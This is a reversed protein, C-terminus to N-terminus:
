LLTLKVIKELTLDIREVESAYPLACEIGEILRRNKILQLCEEKIYSQVNQKSRQITEAIDPCNDLVYIIDEFDHSQRLDNGGRNKYAEFKTSLYYELPFIFIAVGDPLTIPIKNAIGEKYWKNSFGLISSNTPMIDVGINKYVWRCIPAGRSIDNTFGKNRLLEELKYYDSISSIEVVCDIDITPRVEAAAKDKAYFEIVSGGVFVFEDKLQGLGNAITQLMKINPSPM